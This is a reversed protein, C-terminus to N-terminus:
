WWSRQVRAESNCKFIESLNPRVLDGLNYSVSVWSLKQVQSDEHRQRRFIHSELGERAMKECKLNTIMFTRIM